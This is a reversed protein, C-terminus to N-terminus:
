NLNTIARLMAVRSRLRPYKQWVEKRDLFNQAATRASAILRIDTLKAIRLDLAGHQLTGYIAGPGRLRLDLESLKFGDTTSELARLRESYSKADSLVLYCYSKHAGRGVRGRLQHIQALGFREAGEIMMISANPVDVGVEIVTTSVLIDYKHDLFAAMVKEKDAPKLKGHLLAVKRHKFDHKSLRAYVEEASLGGSTESDIILPCVVFMQRGAALQKDIKEYLAGRSVPNCIRTEIVQRGPPLEDLVSIDLEGYLTLALSRPIPTATMHLVHPMHGAKAQLKKRQEVGFRHQEDIIILGLKHMDVKEAILAQTGIIMKIEGSAIKQHALKKQPPKLSGVLLSVQQGFGVNSLLNLITDAHQRALIETPAMLAVQFGQVMAMAAAMAAVVTKGSGVDGEVLRNMPQYKTMDQFIQWAVKRQANTLKFPLATVFDRALKENFAIALSKEHKIEQKNLLAALTLEFVEEFALRRKAETLIKSSSPFHVESVAQSYNMLKQNDLLWGPLHEPLDGISNLAERVLKRVLYSKLGKTERYIPIIRATNVPFDSVLEVSPNAISFRSRRMAYEGAVFYQQGHKIAGSRYPQNFWVLRVSATDDTAIAETIHMGRRVYRGTVSSIKAQITVPGPHLNEIATINSYDDYRRPYNEILDSVTHIGLGGLKGALGDGVGKLETIPSTLEM